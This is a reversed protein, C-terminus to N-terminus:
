VFTAAGSKKEALGTFAAATIASSSSGAPWGGM